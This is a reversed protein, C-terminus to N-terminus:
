QVQRYLGGTYLLFMKQDRPHDKYVLKVTNGQGSYVPDYHNHDYCAKSQESSYHHSKM